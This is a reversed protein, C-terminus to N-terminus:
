SLVVDEEVGHTWVHVSSKLVIGRGFVCNGYPRREGLTCLELGKIASENRCM